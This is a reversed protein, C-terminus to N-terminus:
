EARNYFELEIYWSDLDKLPTKDEKYAGITLTDPISQGWLHGSASGAHISRNNLIGLIVPSRVCGTNTSMFCDIPRIDELELIVAGDIEDANSTSYTKVRVFEYKEPTGTLSLTYKNDVKTCDTSFLHFTRRLPATRFETAM